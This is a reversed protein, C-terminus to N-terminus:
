LLLFCFASGIGTFFRCIAAMLATQAIALGATGLICFLLSWLIVRRTAFRDLLMGAPVLFIINAMFYASSIFGLQGATLHFDRLLSSSIADFMNQQIFEYFFFLAATLVVFWARPHTREVSSSTM